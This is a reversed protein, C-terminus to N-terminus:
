RPDGPDASFVIANGEREHCTADKLFCCHGRHYPIIYARSSWCPCAVDATLNPHYTAAAKDNASM